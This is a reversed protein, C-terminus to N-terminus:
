YGIIELQGRIVADSPDFGSLVLPNGALFAVVFAAYSKAGSNSPSYTLASTSNSVQYGGISNVDQATTGSKQADPPTAWVGHGKTSDETLTTTGDLTAVYGVFLEGSQTPANSTVTPSTGSGAQKASAGSDLPSFNVEIGTAYLPSMAVRSGSVAKTYTFTMTSTLAACNYAYFIGAIGNTPSSNLNTSVVVTYSNATGDSLTGLASITSKETVGVVILSGQPVAPSVALTLTTGSTNGTSGLTTVSIAMFLYAGM